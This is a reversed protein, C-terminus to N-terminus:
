YEGNSRPTHPDDARSRDSARVRPSSPAYGGAGSRAASPTGMRSQQREDADRHIANITDVIGKLYRQTSSDKWATVTALVIKRVDESEGIHEGLVGRMMSMLMESTEQPTAFETLMKTSVNALEDADPQLGFMAKSILGPLDGDPPTPKLYYMIMRVLGRTVKFMSTLEPTIESPVGQTIRSKQAEDYEVRWRRYAYHISMMMATQYVSVLLVLCSSFVVLFKLYHVQAEGMLHCRYAADFPEEFSLANCDCMAGARSILSGGSWTTTGDAATTRSIESYGSFLSYWFGALMVASVIIALFKCIMFKLFFAEFRGPEKEAARVPEKGILPSHYQGRAIAHSRNYRRIFESNVGAGFFLLLFTVMQFVPWLQSAQLKIQTECVRNIFDMGYEFHGGAGLGDLGKAFDGLAVSTPRCLIGGGMMTLALTLVSIAYLAVVIFLLTEDHGVVENDGALSKSKRSRAKHRQYINSITYALLMFDALGLDGLIDDDIKAREDAGINAATADDRDDDGFRNSDVRGLETLRPPAAGHPADPPGAGVDMEIRMARDAREVRDAMESLNRGSPSDALDSIAGSFSGDRLSAM